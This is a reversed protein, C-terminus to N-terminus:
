SSCSCQFGLMSRPGVGCYRREAREEESLEDDPADGERGWPEFPSCAMQFLLHLLGCPGTLLSKM